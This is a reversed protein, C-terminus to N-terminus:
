ERLFCQPQYPIVDGVNDDTVQVSQCSDEHASLLPYSGTSDNFITAYIIVDADPSTWDVVWSPVKISTAVSRAYALVTLDPSSAVTEDRIGLLTKSLRVLMPGPDEVSYDIFTEDVDTALGVVAFVKDRADSAEFDRTFYLIDLITLKAGRDFNHKLHGLYRANLFWPALTGSTLRERFIDVDIMVRAVSLLIESPLTTAGCLFMLGRAMLAEQVIWVRSFWPNTLIAAMDGWVKDTRGPMGLRVAEAEATDLSNYDFHKEQTEPDVLSYEEMTAFLRRVYAFGRKVSQDEEGLWAIVHDAHGYIDQMLRVQVTKEENDKQNICIADAWFYLSAAMDMRVTIYRNVLLTHLNATISLRKGDCMIPITNDPNGWVYSLAEYKPGCRIIEDLSKTMLHCHITVDSDPVYRYVLLRIDRHNPLAKYIYPARLLSSERAGIGEEHEEMILVKVAQKDVILSFSAIM